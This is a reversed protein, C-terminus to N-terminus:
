LSAQPLGNEVNTSQNLHAQIEGDCILWIEKSLLRTFRRTFMIKDGPQGYQCAKGSRIITGWEPAKTIVTHHIVTSKYENAEVRILHNDGVPIVHEPEKHYIALIDTQKFLIRQKNKIVNPFTADKSLYVRDGASVERHLSRYRTPDLQTVIAEDVYSEINFGKLLEIGKTPKMEQQMRDGLADVLNLDTNKVEEGLVWSQNMYLKGEREICFIDSVQMFVDWSGDANREMSTRDEACLYHFWVRDGTRIDIEFVGGGIYGVPYHHCRPMIRNADEVPNVDPSDSGAQVIGTITMKNHNDFKSDALLLSESGDDRRHFEDMLRQLRVVIRGTKSKM